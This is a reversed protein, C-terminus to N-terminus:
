KPAVEVWAANSMARQYGYLGAKQAEALGLPLAAAIAEEKTAAKVEHQWLVQHLVDGQEQQWVSAVIWTRQTSPTPSTKAKM